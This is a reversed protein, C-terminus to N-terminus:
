EDGRKISVKPLPEGSYNLPPDDTGGGLLKWWEYAMHSSKSVKEHSIGYYSHPTLEPTLIAKVAQGVEQEIDWRLKGTEKSVRDAHPKAVERFQGLAVRFTLECAERLIRLQESTCEITITLKDTM